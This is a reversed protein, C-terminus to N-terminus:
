KKNKPNFKVVEATAHVTRWSVIWLTPWGITDRKIKFNEVADGKLVRRGYWNMMSQTKRPSVTDRWMYYQCANPLSHSGGVIPIFGFLYSTYNTAEIDAIVVNGKASIKKGYAYEMTPKVTSTTCGSLIMVALVFICLFVSKKM